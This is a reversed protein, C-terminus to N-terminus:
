KPSPTFPTEGPTVAKKYVRSAIITAAGTTVMDLTSHWEPALFLKAGQVVIGLLTFFGERTRLVNVM